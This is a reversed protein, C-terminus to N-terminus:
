DMQHVESELKQLQEDISLINDYVPANLNM